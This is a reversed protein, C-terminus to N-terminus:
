LTENRLKSMRYVSWKEIKEFGLEQLLNIGWNFNNLVRMEVRVCRNSFAEQCLHRLFEKKNEDTGFDKRLYIDEIYLVKFGLYTAFKYNCIAFGILKDDQFCLTGQAIPNVGLFGESYDELSATFLDKQGEETALQQNMTYLAEINENTVKIFHM